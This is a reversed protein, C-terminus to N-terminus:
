KPIQLVLIKIRDRLSNVEGKFESMMSFQRSMERFVTSATTSSSGQTQQPSYVGINSAPGLSSM